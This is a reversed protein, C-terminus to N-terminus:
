IKEYFQSSFNPSNFIFPVQKIRSPLHLIKSNSNCFIKKGKPNRPIHMDVAGGTYSQKLDEYM